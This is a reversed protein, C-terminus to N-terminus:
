TGASELAGPLFRVQSWRNLFHGPSKLSFRRWRRLYVVFVADNRGGKRNRRERLFAVSRSVFLRRTVSTSAM